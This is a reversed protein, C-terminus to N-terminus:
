AASAAPARLAREIWGGGVVRKGDYLVAAQGPTVAALGDAAWATFGSATVESLAAEAPAFRSRIKMRLRTGAPVPGNLWNASRAVLGASLTATRPGIHVTGSQADIATVYLAEGASLGLGRRQGITFRHVGDHRAVVHGSADVITGPRETKEGAYRSM